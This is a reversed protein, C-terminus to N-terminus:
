HAKDLWWVNIHWDKGQGRKDAPPVITHFPGATSTSPKDRSLRARPSSLFVIVDAIPKKGRRRLPKRTKLHRQL